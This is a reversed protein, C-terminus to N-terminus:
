YDPYPKTQESALNEATLIVLCDLSSHRIEEPPMPEFGVKSIFASNIFTTEIISNEL